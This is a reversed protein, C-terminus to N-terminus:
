TMPLHNRRRRRRGAIAGPQDRLNPPVLFRPRNFNLISTFLIVSILLGALAFIDIWMGVSGKGPNAGVAIASVCIIFFCGCMSGFVLVGRDWGARSEADLFAGSLRRTLPEGKGHWQRVGVRFCWVAMAGTVLAVFAYVIVGM